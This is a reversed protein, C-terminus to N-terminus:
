AVPQATEAPAPTGTTSGAATADQYIKMLSKCIGYFGTQILGKTQYRACYEVFKGDEFGHTNLINRIGDAVKVNVDDPDTQMADQGIFRTIASNLVELVTTGDLGPVTAPVTSFKELYNVSVAPAAAKPKTSTARPARPAKETVAPPNRQEELLKPVKTVYAPPKEFQVASYDKTLGVEKAYCARPDRWILRFRTGTAVDTLLDWGTVRHDWSESFRKLVKDVDAADKAEYGSKLEELTLGTETTALRHFVEHKVSDWNAFWNYNNPSPDKKSKYEGVIKWGEPIGPCEPYPELRVQELKLPM